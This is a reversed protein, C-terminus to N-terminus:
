RPTLTAVDTLCAPPGFEDAHCKSNLHFRWEYTWEGGADDTLSATGHDGFANGRTGSGFLDNDNGQYSTTGTAWPGTEESTDLCPGFGPPDDVFPWLEIHLDSARASAVFAGKGVEKFKTRVDDIGEVPDPFPPPQEGPFDEPPNGLIETWVFFDEGYVIAWEELAVQEPTCTAARDSNIFVAFGNQFDGFGLALKEQTPPDAGVPVASVVLAVTALIAVITRRM